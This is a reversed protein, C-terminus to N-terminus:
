FWGNLHTILNQTDLHVRLLLPDTLLKNFWSQRRLCPSVADTLMTRVTIRQQFLLLLLTLIIHAAFLERSHQLLSICITSRGQTSFWPFQRLPCTTFTYRFGNKKTLLVHLDDRLTWIFYPHSPTTYQSHSVVTASTLYNLIQETIQTYYHIFIFPM